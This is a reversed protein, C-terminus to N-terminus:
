DRMKARKGIGAGLSPHLLTPKRRRDWHPTFLHFGSNVERFIRLIRMFSQVGELLVDEGTAEVMVQNM